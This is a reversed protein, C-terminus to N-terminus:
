GLTQNPVGCFEIEAARGAVKVRLWDLYQSKTMMGQYAERAPFHTIHGFSMGQRIITIRGIRHEPLFLRVAVAKGAERYALREKAERSIHKVPSRLGMEHEPQALQFDQYTMFNRGSFLAYRLAENLLYKIDAPTYGPTETALI